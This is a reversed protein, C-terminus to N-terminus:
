RYRFFPIKLKLLIRCTEKITDIIAANKKVEGKALVIRFLIASDPSASSAPELPLNAIHIFKGSAKM